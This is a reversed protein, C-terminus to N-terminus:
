VQLEWLADATWPEDRFRVWKTGNWRYQQMADWVWRSTLRTDMVQDMAWDWLDRSWVPCEQVENEYPVTITTEKFKHATMYYRLHHVNVIVITSVPTLLEAASKKLAALDSNSKITFKDEGSAVKQIITILTEIHEKPLLASTVLESFEFDVRSRYPKWPNEM